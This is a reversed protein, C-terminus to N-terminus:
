SRAGAVVLLSNGFPLRVPGLTRQEFRSIRYLAANLWGPPVRPLEPAVPFLAEKVHAALKLPYMWHFFYRAMRVEGGAELVLATLRKRTYRTYHRNLVDHSTWLARFAPVTILLTAAPALLQIARRLRRLPDPFHELVDLMLVLGYRKGPQFDEDFPGVRIRDAWRGQPALGTADMEIGQVEGLRSLKEFFLGDGCGVDLIAGWGGQPRLARLTSLILDERARWWWHKEYLERYRQAYLPDV